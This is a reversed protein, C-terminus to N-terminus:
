CAQEGIESFLRALFGSFLCILSTKLWAFGAFSQDIVTIGNHHQVPAIPNRNKFITWDSHWIADL